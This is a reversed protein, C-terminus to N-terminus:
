PERVSLRYAVQGVDAIEVVSDDALVAWLIGGSDSVLLASGACGLALVSGTRSAVDDFAV